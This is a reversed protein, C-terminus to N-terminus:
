SKIQLRVLFTNPNGACYEITLTLGLPQCYQFALFLGLGAGPEAATGNRHAKHFAEPFSISKQLAETLSECSNHIELYNGSLTISIQSDLLTFKVANDLLLSLVESLLEGRDPWQHPLSEVNWLLTIQKEELRKQNKLCWKELLPHIAVFNTSSEHVTQLKQELRLYNKVMTAMHDLGLMAEQVKSFYTELNSKDPDLSALQSLGQIRSIPSRFDHSLLKALDLREKKWDEPTKEM